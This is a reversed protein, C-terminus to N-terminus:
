GFIVALVFIILMCEVLIWTATLDLIFGILGVLGCLFLFLLFLM